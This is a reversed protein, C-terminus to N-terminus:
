RFGGCRLVQANSNLSEFTSDDPSIVVVTQTIRVVKAFAALTHLVMAQGAISQYQKPLDGGARLGAGACPILAIFRPATAPHIDATSM